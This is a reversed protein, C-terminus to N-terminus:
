RDPTDFRRRTFDPAELDCPEAIADDHYGFRVLVPDPRRRAPRRRRGSPCSSATAPRAAAALETASPRTSRSPRPRGRRSGPRPSTESPAGCGQAAAVM